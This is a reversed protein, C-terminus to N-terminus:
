IHILSLRQVAHPFYGPEENAIRTLTAVVDPADEFEILTAAQDLTMGTEAILRTGTESAAVTLGTKIKDRKTGTRKAIATVSLGELELAKYAQIRDGDTLAQRQDNEVLQEVIRQADDAADAEVIYVPVSPLGVQQAALTRRQGYRVHVGNEDRTAVIPVLVGNASVSDLFEKDLSAEAATRVNTAM